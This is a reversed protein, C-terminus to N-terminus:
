IRTIQVRCSRNYTTGGINGGINVTPTPANHWAMITFYDDPQMTITTSCNQYTAINTTLQMSMGYRNGADSGYQMWTQRTGANFYVWGVQWTVIFTASDTGTYTFRGVNTVGDYTLGQDTVYASPQGPNTDPNDFTVVTDTTTPISQVAANYRAITHPPGLYRPGTPGQSGTPGTVVSSAGTPGTYGIM